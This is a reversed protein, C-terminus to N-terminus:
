PTLVDLGLAVTNRMLGAGTCPWRPDVVWFTQLWLAAVQAQTVGKLPLPILCRGEADAQVPLILSPNPDVVVRVQLPPGLVVEQQLDRVGVLVFGPAQRPLGRALVAFGADDQVAPGLPELPMAGACPTATGKVTLHVLGPTRRALFGGYYSGTGKMLADQTVPLDGSRSTGALLVSQRDPEWALGRLEEVDSGGHYCMALLGHLDPTLRAAFADGRWTAYGAGLYTGGAMDRTGPLDASGTQGGVWVDGLEGLALATIEDEGAGGYYTGADLKSLAADFRLVFGDGRLAVPPSGHGAYGEQLAGKPVGLDKSRTWGGALLAGSPEVLLCAVSDDASGGVFSAVELKDGAAAFRVVFGELADDGGTSRPKPKYAATTTPFDTSRTEGGVWVAGDARLAVARARGWASGGVYTSWLLSGKATDIRAAVAHVGSTSPATTLFAGSTTPFGAGGEGVVTVLGQDDFGLDAALEYGAGGLYTSYALSAGDKDLVTVVLDSQYPTYLSTGNRAQQVAGATVPYDTAFSAGAVAVRQGKDTAIAALEVFDNGGLFTSWAVKFKEDKTRSQARPM